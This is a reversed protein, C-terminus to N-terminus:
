DKKELQVVLVSALILSVGAWQEIAMTEKFVLVGVLTGVVPEITATISARSTELGALGKTYFIYALATPFIGLNIIRFIADPNSTIMQFPLNIFVPFLIFTAAVFTYLIMTMPHYKRLILRGIISYLAYGIGSGLGAILGIFTLNMQGPRYLGTILVLGLFAMILSGIKGRTLKEKFFVRSFITVIAPATYLLIVAISVSTEQITFFYCWSFFVISFVGTGIFLYIDKISIKFKERDFIAIYLLLILVASYARLAVIQISTLGIDQLGKVFISIIGWLSAGVIVSLYYKLKIM